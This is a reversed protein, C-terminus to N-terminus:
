GLEPQIEGTGDDTTALGSFGASPAIVACAFQVSAFLLRGISGLFAGIMSETVITLWNTRSLADAPPAAVGNQVLPAISLSIAIAIFLRVRVPVHSSSFGPLLMLCAGIRCFVLFMDILRVEDGIM